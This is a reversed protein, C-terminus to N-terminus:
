TPAQPTLSPLFHRVPSTVATNPNNVKSPLWMRQIQNGCFLPLLLSVIANWVRFTPKQITLILMLRVELLKPLGSHFKTWRTKTSKTSLNSQIHVPTSQMPFWLIQWAAVSSSLNSRPTLTAASKTPLCASMKNLHSFTRATKRSSLFKARDVKRIKEESSLLWWMLVAVQPHFKQLTPFRVTKRSLVAIIPLHCTITTPISPPAVKVAAELM